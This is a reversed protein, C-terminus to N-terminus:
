VCTCVVLGNCMCVDMCICIYASQNGLMEEVQHEIKVLQGIIFFSYQTSNKFKVQVSVQVTRNYETTNRPEQGSCRGGPNSGSHWGKITFAQELGM